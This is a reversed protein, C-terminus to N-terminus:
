CNVMCLSTYLVYIKYLHVLIWLNQRFCRGTQYVPLKSDWSHTQNCPEFQCNRENEGEVVSMKCNLPHLTTWLGLFGLKLFEGELGCDTEPFTLVKHTVLFQLCCRLKIFCCNGVYLNDTFTWILMEWSSPKLLKPWRLKWVESWEKIEPVICFV